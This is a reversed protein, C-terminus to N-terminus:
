RVLRSIVSCSQHTHLSVCTFCGAVSRSRVVGLFRYTLLVGFGLTKTKDRDRANSNVLPVCYTAVRELANCEACRFLRMWTERVSPVRRRGPGLELTM